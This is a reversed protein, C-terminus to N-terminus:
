NKENESLKINQEEYSKILKKNYNIEKKLESIINNKEILIEKYKNNNNQEKKEKELDDINNQLSDAFLKLQHETKIHGRLDKEYKILMEEYDQQIHENLNYKNNYDDIKKEVIELIITDKSDNIYKILSIENLSSLYEIDEEKNNNQSKKNVSYYKLNLYLNILANKTSIQHNNKM